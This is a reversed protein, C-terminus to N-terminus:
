DRLCRVSRFNEKNGYDSYDVSGSLYSFVTIKSNDPTLTASWYEANYYITSGLVYSGWSNYAYGAARVSFGTTNNGTCYSPVNFNDTQHYWGVSDCLSRIVSSCNDTSYQSFNASVYNVLKKWEGDSPVHWGSPCVGQQASPISNSSIGDRIVAKWNYLLGFMEFNNSNGGPYVYYATSTTRSSNQEIPWGDSYHTTRLNEKMWCQQGILVTNYVNGDYDTVTKSDCGAYFDFQNGYTTGKANTAFAKVFYLKGIPLGSLTVEFEGAGDGVLVVNSETTPNPLTDYCFGRQTVPAGGDSTVTAFCENYSSVSDTTVTPVTPTLTTATMNASYSVGVANVAYARVYYTTEPELGTLTTSFVGVGNGLHVHEGTM